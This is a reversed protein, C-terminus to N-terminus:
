GSGHERIFKVAILWETEKTSAAWTSGTTKLLSLNILEEVNMVSTAKQQKNM